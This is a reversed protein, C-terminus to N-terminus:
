HDTAIFNVSPTTEDFDVSRAPVPFTYKKSTVGVTYVHFTMVNLFRYYGFPNTVAYFTNNQDDTLSVIVGPAGRGSAGTARGLLTAPVPQTEALTFAAFSTVGNVTARNTTPNLTTQLQMASGNDIRFARYRNEIGVVDSDPYGLVLNAQTIGTSSTNWWRQLRNAPLGTAAGSYAGSRPEVTFDGSGTIGSLELPGYGNLPAGTGVPFLFTGTSNVCRTLSSQIISIDNGVTLAGPSCSTLRTPGGDIRGVSLTLSGNITLSSVGFIDGTQRVNGHVILAGPGTIAGNVIDLDGNVTLTRAIALNRGGTVVLSSVTVDASTITVNSASITVGANPGPVTGSAWNSGTHWDTSTAGTWVTERWRAFYPSVNCGATTFAGGVYLNGGSSAATIPTGGNLGNGLPSWTTGNWRAIRNMSGTFDGFAIIDNGMTIARVQNSSGPFGSGLASWTSGNWKAIRNVTLGGISPFGGTVYLDNGLVALSTVGHGGWGSSLGTWNTGDFKLLYNPSDATTTTSGVYLDTGVAAIAVVDNPIIASGPLSSWTTGNWKAIRNTPSGGATSFSGGVYLDGAVIAMAYISANLGTVGSGLASWSTGNWRAIANASVGGISTFTGGAYLYGGSVVLSRVFSSSGVVGSGLTSWTSGNWKAIKNAAVSGANAFRGAVYVDTGSVAVATTDADLGTGNFASWTGTNWTSLNKAVQGGATAFSGGVVLTNGMFALGNVDTLINEGVGAGLSNWQTGNWKAIRNASSGGATTFNGGVYVDTGSVVIAEVEQTGSGGIGTGLTQWSSGNWKAVNGFGATALVGGVYIDSGSVAITLVRNQFGTGIASWSSGNWKAVNGAPVGGADTFRGGAILDTGSVALAFVENNMGTGVAVWSAGDWRAVRNPFGNTANFKGGAYVDSGLVAVANVWELQTGGLGAGMASWSTGNWKAIHNAPAGGATTFDGAAYVDNGSIAIDLVNGGSLGSGLATWTTGNWKAIRSAAIDQISSFAGGVYVNGAGDSVVTYVGNDAGNILFSTDWNDSCGSQTASSSQVFRPEGNPGYSMRFGSPDFSGSANQKLSGDDNLITSLPANPASQAYVDSATFLAFVFLLYSILSIPHRM